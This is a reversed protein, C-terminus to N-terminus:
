NIREWVEYSGLGFVTQKGFHVVSGYHLLMALEPDHVTLKMQWEVGDLPVEKKQSASYRKQAYWHHDFFTVSYHEEKVQYAPSVKEDSWLLQTQKSRRVIAHVIDDATVAKLISGKRQLRVPSTAQLWFARPVSAGSHWERNEIVVEDQYRKKDPMVTTFDMIEFTVRESGIGSECAMGLAEIFDLVQVDDAEFFTLKMTLEDGPSISGSPVPAPDIIFHPPLFHMEKSAHHHVATTNPEFLYGYTCEKLVDCGECDKTEKICHNSVLHMGTVSRFLGGTYRPLKGSSTAQLRVHLECLKLKLSM